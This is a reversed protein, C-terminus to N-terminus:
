INLRHDGRLYKLHRCMLGNVTKWTYMELTFRDDVMLSIPRAVDYLSLTCAASSVRIGAYSKVIRGKPLSFKDDSM